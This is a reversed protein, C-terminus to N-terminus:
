DRDVEQQLEVEAKQLLSTSKLIKTIESTSDAVVLSSELRKIKLLYVQITERKPDYQLSMYARIGAALVDNQEPDHKLSGFVHACASRKAEPKPLQHYPSGYDYALVLYLVQAESLNSLPPCLQYCEPKLITKNDPTLSFLM